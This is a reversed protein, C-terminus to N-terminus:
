FLLRAMAALGAMIGGSESAGHGKRRTPIYLVDGQQLRPSAGTGLLTKGLDITRIVAKGSSDQRVIDVNTKDGDDTVGGALSLATTIPM